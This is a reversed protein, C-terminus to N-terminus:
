VIATETDCCAFDTDLYNAIVQAQFNRDACISGPTGDPNLAEPVSFPICKLVLDQCATGIQAPILIHKAGRPHSVGDAGIESLIISVALKRDPCVAKVTVDVQVIRGLSLLQAPDLATRLADQCGPITFATPTPCPEPYIPPIQCNVEVTPSPFTLTNGAADEYTVAQNFEKIGGDQGIHMIEFTMSVTEPDLTLGAFPLNWTLTQPGTIVATEQPVTGLSVIKFDPSLTETIQVNEAGPISIRAAVAQFLAELQTRDNTFSVHTSFPQSAWAELPLPDDLLGICYIEVGAAKMRDTVPRADGGVTTLGDTFMVAVQRNTGKPGLIAEAAEFAAKHNTDGGRTLSSIATRLPALNVTLQVDQTATSSFSVMGIRTGGEITMGGAPATADTITRILRTAAQRASFIKQLDMSYSRDMIIVVDAPDANLQAASDFGLTVTATGQCSIVGPTILKQPNLVSM